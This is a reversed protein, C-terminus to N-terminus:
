NLLNGADVRMFRFLNIGKGSLQFWKKSQKTQKLWFAIFLGHKVLGAGIGSLTEKDQIPQVSELSGKVKWAGFCAVMSDM